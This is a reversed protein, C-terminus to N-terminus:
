DLISYAKLSGIFDVLSIRADADTKLIPLWQSMPPNIFANMGKIKAECYPTLFSAKDREGAAYVNWGDPGCTADLWWPFGYLSPETQDHFAQEYIRRHAPLM